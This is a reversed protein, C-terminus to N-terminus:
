RYIISSLYGVVQSNDYSIDGSHYYCLNDVQNYGTLKALHLLFLIPGFGCAEIQHTFIQREIEDTDKNKVLEALQSDMKSALEANHYHSLDSSAVFLTEALKDQFLEFLKKALNSSNENNQRGILIPVIEADPNLHQIFPIQIELSNENYFANEEFEFHPFDLLKQVIETNIKAKGLPTQYYDYDGVSYEFHNYQHSAAVIVVTKKNKNMAAQFGHAACKGSYPYGAHPSIIGLPHQYSKELKADQLYDAIQNQLKQPNATYFSGALESQKIKDM